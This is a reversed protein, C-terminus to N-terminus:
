EIVGVTVGRGCAGMLIRVLVLFADTLNVIHHLTFPNVSLKVLAWFIIKWDMFSISKDESGNALDIM